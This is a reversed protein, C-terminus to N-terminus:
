RNRHTSTSAAALRGPEARDIIATLVALETDVHEPM